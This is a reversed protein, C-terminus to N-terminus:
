EHDDDFDYWSLIRDFLYIQQFFNILSSASVGFSIQFPCTILHIFIQLYNEKANGEPQDRERYRNQDEREARSLAREELRDHRHCDGDQCREKKNEIEGPDLAIELLFDDRDADNLQEEVYNQM